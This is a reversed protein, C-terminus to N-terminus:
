MRFITPRSSLLFEQNANSRRSLDLAVLCTYKSEVCLSEPSLSRSSSVYRHQIPLFSILFSSTQSSNSLSLKLSYNSVCMERVLEDKSKRKSEIVAKDQNKKLRADRQGIIRKVQVSNETPIKAICQRSGVQAFKRTKKNVGMERLRIFKINKESHSKAKHSDCDSSKSLQYRSLYLLTSYAIKLKRESRQGGM